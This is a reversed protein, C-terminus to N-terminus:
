NAENCSKLLRYIPYTKYEERTKADLTGLVKKAEDYEELLTLAGVQYRPNDTTVVIKTLVQKEAFTLNRLRHEIQLQNIIAIEYDIFNTQTLLWNSLQKIFSLLDPAHQEDYAALMELMTQNAANISYKEPEIRKFDEVISQYDLNDITLFHTKNLMSFQSVPHSINNDDVQIVPICKSFFDWFYYGGDDTKKCIVLLRLNSISLNIVTPLEGNINYVPAEKELAIALANLKGFDDDTCNALDLDKKVNLKDLLARTRKLSVLKQPLNDYGISKLAEKSFNVRLLHSGLRLSKHKIMDYIFPVSELQQNLTGKIKVTIKVPKEGSTDDNPTVLTMCNGIEHTITDATIIVECSSYYQTEGVYIPIQCTHAMTVHSVNDYYDVPIPVPYGNISAYISLGKGDIIKPFLTQNRNHGLGWYRITLGNLIGQESLKDITPIPGDSFSYQLKSDEYFNLIIETKETNDDPFKQFPIRISSTNKKNEMRIKMIRVPLLPSYYIQLPEGTTKDFYVVFYM